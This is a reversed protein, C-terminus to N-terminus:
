GLLELSSKKQYDSGSLGIGLNCTVQWFILSKAESKIISVM